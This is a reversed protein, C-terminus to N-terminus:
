KEGFFSSITDGLKAWSDEDGEKKEGEATANNKAAKEAEKALREAEAKEQEEVTITKEFVSEISTVHILGSDDLNFHAKIGKTETNETDKHKELAGSVGSVQVNSLHTKGIWNVENKALHDFENYHVDFQFDNTFKNFTMIKKQAFGNMPPYLNKKVQKIAEKGSDDEYKREFEVEIPYVVADKTIFKKVQLIIFLFVSKKNRIRKNRHFVLSIYSKKDGQQFFFFEKEGM